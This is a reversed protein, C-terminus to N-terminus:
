TAAASARVEGAPAGLRLPPREAPARKEERHGHSAVAGCADSRLGFRKVQGMRTEGLGGLPSAPPHWGGPGSCNAGFHGQFSFRCLERASEEGACARARSPVWGGSWTPLRPAQQCRGSGSTRRKTTLASPLPSVRIGPQPRGHSAQSVNVHAGSLLRSVKM